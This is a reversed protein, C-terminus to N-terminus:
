TSGDSGVIGEYSIAGYVNRFTAKFFSVFNSTLQWPTFATIPAAREWRRINHQNSLLFFATDSGNDGAAAGIKNSQLVQLNYKTSFVNPDNDATGSRLEAETIEVAKKYLAPPVLLTRAEHGVVDGAQDKQEYLKTIMTNLQSESLAATEKNDITDGNINSQSDSILATGNNTTTGSFANRYLGFGQVNDTHRGKVAQKAVAERVTGWNEDDEYNKPVPISQSFETVTRSLKDDSIITAETLDQLENERQTWQGGDNQVMTNVAANNTSDQRFIAEMMVDGTSPGPKANFESFFLDDLETIVLDPNLGSTIGAM